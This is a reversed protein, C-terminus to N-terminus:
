GSSTYEPEGNPVETAKIELLIVQFALMIIFNGAVIPMPVSVVCANDRLKARTEM